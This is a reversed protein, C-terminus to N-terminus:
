PGRRDCLELFPEAKVLTEIWEDSAKSDAVIGAGVPYHCVGPQVIATRIGVSLAASGDDGFYGIAGCYPGRAPLAHDFGLSPELEDIIQMARVKPAGTVSGPPFAARILDAVGLGQRLRGSVTAVGQEVHAARASGHREISRADDVRVSGFECVRGLDNRMLDVIMALEAADKPSSGLSADGAPRTGKMPRTVVRRDADVTVFLEPSASAVATGAHEAYCGHWPALRDALAAMLSRPCGQFGAALRHTLNVQFADGRCILEVARAVASEFAARRELGRPSSLRFGTAADSPPEDGTVDGFGAWDGTRNDHIWGRDIRALVAAPRQICPKNDTNTTLHPQPQSAAAPELQRGAAYDIWGIWGADPKPPGGPQPKPAAHKALLSDLQDIKALQITETPEALLSFRTPGAPDGAILAALPTDAPWAAVAHAATTAPKAQTPSM